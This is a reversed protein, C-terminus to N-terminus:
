RHTNILIWVYLHCNDIPILFLHIIRYSEKLCNELMPVVEICLSLFISYGLPNIYNYLTRYFATTFCKLEVLMLFCLTTRFILLQHPCRTYQNLSSCCLTTRHNNRVTWLLHQESETSRYTEKVHVNALSKWLCALGQENSCIFYLYRITTKLKLGCM